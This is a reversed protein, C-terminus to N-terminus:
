KMERAKDIAAELFRVVDRWQTCVKDGSVEHLTASASVIVCPTKEDFQFFTNVGSILVHDLAAYGRSSSSRISIPCNDKDLFRITAVDAAGYIVRICSAASSVKITWNGHQFRIYNASIKEMLRYLDLFCYRDHDRTTISKLNVGIPTKEDFNFTYPGLRISGDKFGMERAQKIFDDALVKAHMESPYLNQAVADLVGSLVGMVTEFKGM